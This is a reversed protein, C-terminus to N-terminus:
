RWKNVVYWFLVPFPYPFNLLFYLSDHFNKSSIKSRKGQLIKGDRLQRYSNKLHMLNVAYCKKAKTNRCITRRCRHTYEKKISVSKPLCCAKFRCCDWLTHIRNWHKSFSLIEKTMKVIVQTRIVLLLKNFWPSRIAHRQGWTKYFM